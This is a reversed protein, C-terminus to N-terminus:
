TGDALTSASRASAVSVSPVSAASLLQADTDAPTRLITSTHQPMHQMAMACQSSKGEECLSVFCDVVALVREIPDTDDDWKYETRGFTAPPFAAFVSERSEVLWRHEAPCGRSLFLARIHGFREGDPQPGVLAQLLPLCTENDLGPRKGEVSEVWWRLAGPVSEWVSAAWEGVPRSPVWEPEPPRFDGPSM